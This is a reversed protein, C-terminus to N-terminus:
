RINGKGCPTKFYLEYVVEQAIDDDSMETEKYCDVIENVVKQWQGKSYRRLKDLSACDYTPCYGDENCYHDCLFRNSFVIDLIIDLKDKM